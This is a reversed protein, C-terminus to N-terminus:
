VGKPRKIKSAKTQMILTIEDQRKVSTKPNRSEQYLFHTETKLKYSAKTHLQLEFKQNKSSIITINIGRYGTDKDAEKLLWANFIKGIKYGKQRFHRQLNELCDAYNSASILFTYRLADNIRKEMIRVPIKWAECKDEIKRILSEVTKFKKRLGVVKVGCFVAIEKVDQTIQPENQKSELLLQHAIESTQNKFKLIKM